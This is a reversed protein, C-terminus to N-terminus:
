MNYEIETGSIAKGPPVAATKLFIKVRISDSRNILSPKNKKFFFAWSILSSGILGTLIPRTQRFFVADCFSSDNGDPDNRKEQRNM